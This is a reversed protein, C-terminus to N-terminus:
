GDLESRIPWERADDQEDTENPETTFRVPCFNVCRRWSPRWCQIDDFSTLLAMGGGGPDGFHLSFALFETSGFTGTGLNAEGLAVLSVNLRRDGVQWLLRGDAVSIDLKREPLGLADEITATLADARYAIYDDPM